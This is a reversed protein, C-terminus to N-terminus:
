RRNSDMNRMVNRGDRVKRPVWTIIRGIRFSPGTKIDNLDKERQKIIEKQNEITRSLKEITRNLEDIQLKNQRQKRQYHQSIYDCSGSFGSYPNQDNGGSLRSQFFGTGYQEDIWKIIEKLGSDNGCEMNKWFLANKQSGEIYDPKNNPAAIVVPINQVLEMAKLWLDDTFPCIRQIVDENLMKEAWCNPPYLVGSLGTALLQMSPQDLILDTNQVWDVYRPFAGNDDTPIFHGRMTSVCEPHRVYSLLLLETQYRTLLADDDITIITANPMEQAIFFYKKHPGLDRCWRIIVRGDRIMDQLEDPLDTEKGPFQEQSLWLM